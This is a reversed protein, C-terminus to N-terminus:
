EKIFEAYNYSRPCYWTEYRNREFESLDHILTTLLNTKYRPHDEIWHLFGVLGDLTAYFAKSNANMNKEFTSVLRKVGNLLEKDNKETTLCITTECVLKIKEQTTM